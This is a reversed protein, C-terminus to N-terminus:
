GPAGTTGGFVVVLGGEAAIARRFGLGALHAEGRKIGATLDGDRPGSQHSLGFRYPNIQDMLDGKLGVTRIV